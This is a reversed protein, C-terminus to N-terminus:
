THNLEAHDILRRQGTYVWASVELLAANDPEVWQAFKYNALTYQQPFPPPSAHYM